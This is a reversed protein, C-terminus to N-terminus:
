GRSFSERGASALLSAPAPTPVAAGRREKALATFRAFIHKREPWSMGEADIVYRPEPFVVARSIVLPTLGTAIDSLMDAGVERLFDKESSFGYHALFKERSVFRLGYRAPDRGIDTLEDFRFTFCAFEDVYPILRKAKELMEEAEELRTTPFDWILNFKVKIGARKAGRLVPEVMDSTYGKQILRLVRDNLSEVGITLKHCGGMAMLGLLDETWARSVKLYSWWRVDMRSRAIKESVEKAFRPPISDGIFSFRRQGHREYFFKLEQFFDEPERLAFSKGDAWQYPYSCFTCKGWYCGKAYLIPLYFNEPYAGKEFVGDFRPRPPRLPKVPPPSPVAALAGDTKYVLGPVERLPGKDRLARLLAALPEEGSHRIFGDAALLRLLSEQAAATMANLASGGVVRFGPVGRRELGKLLRATPAWQSPVSVSVGIARYARGQLTTFFARELFDELGFFLEAGGEAGEWDEGGSLFAFSIPRMRGYNVTRFFELQLRKDRLLEGNDRAFRELLPMGRMLEHFASRSVPDGGSGNEGAHYARINRDFEELLARITEKEMLWRMYLHNLDMTDVSFGQQSLFAALLPVAIHPEKHLSAFFPPYLLLIDKM